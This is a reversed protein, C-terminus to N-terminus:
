DQHPVSNEASEIRVSVPESAKLHIDRQPFAVELAQEACTLLHQEARLVKTLQEAVEGTLTGRELRSIFKAVAHPLKEAVPYDNALRRGQYSEVILAALAM